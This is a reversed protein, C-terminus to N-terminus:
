LIINQNNFIILHRGQYPYGNKRISDLSERLREENDIGHYNFQKYSIFGEKDGKLYKYAPVSSIPLIKKINLNYKYEKNVICQLESLAIEKIEISELELLFHSCEKLFNEDFDDISYGDLFGVEKLSCRIMESFDLFEQITFDVRMNDIHLHISEGVNDELVFRKFKGRRSSADSLRIVAPNSM